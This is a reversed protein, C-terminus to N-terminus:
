RLMKLTVPDKMVVSKDSVYAGDELDALITTGEGIRGNSWDERQSRHILRSM